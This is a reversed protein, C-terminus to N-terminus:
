LGKRLLVILFLLGGVFEIIVTVLGAAAFVHKLVFTAGLLTALGTVVALPIKEAHSERQALQYTLTVVLFGFFTMPGVMTVAVSILIAVLILMTFVERRYNVGLGIAVDRGLAVIDYTRRRWFGYVLVAAVIGSAIPLYEV